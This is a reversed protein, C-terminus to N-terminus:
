LSESPNQKQGLPIRKLIEQGIRLKYILFAAGVGILIGGLVDTPYHHGVYIRSFGIFFAVFILPTGLKRNYFWIALAIAMSGTTHDSPFSSDAVHPLLMHVHHTVFPRPRYSFMGILFNIGISLVATLFGNIAALRSSPRIALILLVAIYLYPGYTTLSEFFHDWWFHQGAFQNIWQFLHYDL